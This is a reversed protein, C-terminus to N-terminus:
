IDQKEATGPIGLAAMLPRSSLWGAVAGTTGGIISLELGLSLKPINTELYRIADGFLWGTVILIAIATIIGLLLGGAWFGLWKASPYNKSRLYLWQFLGALMPSALAIMLPEVPGPVPGIIIHRQIFEGSLIVLFGLVTSGIWPWVNPIANRLALAQASGLIIAFLPYMVLHMSLGYRYATEYHPGVAEKLEELTQFFTFGESGMAENLVAPRFLEAIPTVLAFSLFGLVLGAANFFIWQSRFTKIM